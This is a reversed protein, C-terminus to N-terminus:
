TDITAPVWPSPPYLHGSYFGLLYWPMGINQLWGNIESPSSMNHSGDLWFDSVKLDMSNLPLTVM